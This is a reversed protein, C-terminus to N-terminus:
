YCMSQIELIEPKYLLALIDLDFDDSFITKCSECEMCLDLM